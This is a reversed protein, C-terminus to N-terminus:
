QSSLMVWTPNSLGTDAYYINNTTNIAIAINGDIDIQKITNGIIGNIQTWNPIKYNESYYLQNTLKDIGYLKGYSIMIQQLKITDDQNNNNKSSSIGM